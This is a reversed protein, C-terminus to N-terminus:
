LKEVDGGISGLRGKEVGVQIQGGRGGGGGSSSDLQRNYSSKLEGQREGMVAGPPPMESSPMSLPGTRVSMHM